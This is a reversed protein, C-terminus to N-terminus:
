MIFSNVFDDVVSTTDYKNINKINIKVKENSFILTKNGISKTEEKILYGAIYNSDISYNHLYISKEYLDLIIIAHKIVDIYEVIEGNMITYKRTPKISGDRNYGKYLLYSNDVENSFGESIILNLRRDSKSLYKKSLLYEKIKNCNKLAGNVKFSFFQKKFFSPKVYQQIIQESM